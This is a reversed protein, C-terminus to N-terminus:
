EAEETLKTNHLGQTPGKDLILYIKIIIKKNNKIRVLSMILCHFQELNM